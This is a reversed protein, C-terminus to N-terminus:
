PINRDAFMATENITDTNPVRGHFPDWPLGIKPHGNEPKEEMKIGTYRTPPLWMKLQLNQLHTSAGRRWGTQSYSTAMETETYGSTPIDVLTVKMPEGYGRKDWIELQDWLQEGGILNQM